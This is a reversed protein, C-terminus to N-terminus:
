QLQLLAIASQSCRTAGAALWRRFDCLTPCIKFCARM